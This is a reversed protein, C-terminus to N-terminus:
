AMELACITQGAASAVAWIQNSPTLDMHLTDGGYLPYGTTTSVGSNTGIFVVENGTVIVRLSVSSRNTLPSPTIQVASTGVAYQSTAFANLGATESTVTGSVTSSGTTTVHLNGSSDVIAVNSGDVITVNGGGGGGGGNVNISGDPNVLLQADSGGNFGNKITTASM